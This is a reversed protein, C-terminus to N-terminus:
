LLRNIVIRWSISFYLTGLLFSQFHFKARKKISNQTETSLPSLAWTLNKLFSFQRRSKRTSDILINLASCCLLFLIFGVYSIRRIGYLYWSSKKRWRLSQYVIVKLHFCIVIPLKNVTLQKTSEQQMNCKSCEIKVTSGLHEARTFQELCDVLSLIQLHTDSNMSHSEMHSASINLSIETFQEVKTSVSRCYM